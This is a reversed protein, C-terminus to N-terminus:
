RQRSIEVFTVGVSENAVDLTAELNGPGAPLSLNSLVVSRAGAEVVREVHVDGFRFTVTAVASSPQFTLKVDFEGAQTVNVEWHGRDKPGWGAGRWDQRTLVVPNEHPTGIQIRPPSYNDPRTRGVDAFWSEYRRKLDAVVDAHEAAM